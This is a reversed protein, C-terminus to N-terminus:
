LGDKLLKVYIDVAQEIESIYIFEDATHSRASDGPGMKLTPFPMFVQDSMTPSGYYSIGMEIGRKVVPHNLEIESSNLRLSRASAISSINSQIIGLAEKNSYKGNLRVDITFICSDPVVNHQSGANIVTVSMKVPGLIDSVKPFSFSRLWEIDKMAIYIANLGEDRAAHGPKGKAECDIVMLGKEAVAMQMKTPEGVIGFDIHGLKSVLLEAGQSGSIEEEASAAFILNFNRSKEKSLIIYAALLSVLAGGADNSGLGTIKGAEVTAQYPPYTWSASPKVTDHHSNLLITPWQPNYHAAQSVVNNSILETKHGYSQLFGAIIAATEQEFGSLSPTSVLKKLLEIIDRTIETQSYIPM